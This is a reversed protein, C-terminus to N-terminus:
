YLDHAALVLNEPKRSAKSKLRFSRHNKLKRVEPMVQTDRSAADPSAPPAAPAATSGAGRQQPRRLQHLYVLGRGARRAGSVPLSHDLPRLRPRPAWFHRFSLKTSVVRQMLPPVPQRIMHLSLSRQLPRALDLSILAHPCPPTQPTGERGASHSRGAPISSGAAATSLPTLFFVSTLDSPFPRTNCSFSQPEPAAHRDADPRVSATRPHSSSSFAAPRAHMFCWAAWRGSSRKWGLSRTGSGSRM